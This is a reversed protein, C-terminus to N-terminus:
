KKAPKKASGQERAARERAKKKAQGARRRMKMSKRRDFRGM